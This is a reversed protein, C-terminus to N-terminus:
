YDKKKPDNKCFSMMRRVNRQARSPAVRVGEPVKASMTLAPHVARWRAPNRNNPHIELHIM